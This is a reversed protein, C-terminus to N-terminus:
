NLLTSNTVKKVVVFEGGSQAVFPTDINFINKEKDKIITGGNEIGYASLMQSLGLLNYKNPHENFYKNSSSNTHKVELINLLTILVNQKRSNEFIM